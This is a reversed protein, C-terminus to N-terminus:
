RMVFESTGRHCLHNIMPIIMRQMTREALRQPSGSGSGPPTSPPGANTDDEVPPTSPPGANTDDEVTGDTAFVYATSAVSALVGFILIFMLLFVLIQPAKM